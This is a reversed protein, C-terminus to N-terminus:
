SVADRSGRIGPLGSRRVLDDRADGAGDRVRGCPTRPVSVDVWVPNDPMAVDYARAMRENVAAGHRDILPRVAAIWERNTRDHAPWWHKRYIPMLRELTARVSGDIALGDLSTREGATRLAEKINILEDDFILNRKSYPAYLEVGAAWADREAEPM